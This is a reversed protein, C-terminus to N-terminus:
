KEKLEALYEKPTCGAKKKFFKIFYDYNNFGCKSMIDKMKHKGAELMYKAKEIRLNGLYEAFGIGVEEKFLKSLYTSGIEIEEAADSLSINKSYNRKIFYVTKQVYESNYQVEVRNNLIILKNFLSM